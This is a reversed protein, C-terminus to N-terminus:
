QLYGEVEGRPRVEENGPDGGAERAARRRRLLDWCQDLSEEVERLRAHEEDTSIQGAQVQTRLRHEEDVLKNIESLITTDEM